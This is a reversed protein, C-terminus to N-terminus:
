AHRLGGQNQNMNLTNDMIDAIERAGDIVSCYVTFTVDVDKHGLIRSINELTEGKELLLTAFTHRLSHPSVHHIGAKQVIRNLASNLFSSTHYEGRRSCCVLGQAHYLKGYKKANAANVACRKVYENIVIDPVRLTRCSTKTKPPKEVMMSKRKNDIIVYDGLVQRQIKVTRKEIDFDEDKLGYIEGKRMGCFLGLLIEFYSEEYSAAEQLLARVEVKTLVDVESPPRRCSMSEDMPNSHILDNSKAYWFAGLLLSKVRYASHPSHNAAARLLNDIYKTDVVCLRIFDDVNPLLYRNLAYEMTMSTNPEVVPIYIDYFWYNLFEKFTVKRATSSNVNKTKDATGGIQFENKIMNQM